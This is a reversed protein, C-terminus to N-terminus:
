IVNKNQLHQINTLATHIENLLINQDPEIKRLTIVADLGTKFLLNNHILAVRLIRKNRNRVTALKSTKKPVIIAFRCQKNDTYLYKIYLAHTSLSLGKKLVDRLVENPLRLERPLM